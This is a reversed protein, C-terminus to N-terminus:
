QSSSDVSKLDFVNIDLIQFQNFFIDYPTIILGDTNTATDTFKESKAANYLLHDMVFAIVVIQIRQPWYVISVVGGAVNAIGNLVEPTMSTSAKSINTNIIFESLIILILFCILVKQLKKVM